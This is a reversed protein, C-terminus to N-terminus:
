NIGAKGMVLFDVSVSPSVKRNVKTVSRPFSVFSRCITTRPTRHDISYAHCTGAHDLRKFALRWFGKANQMNSLYVPPRSPVRENTAFKAIYEATWYVHDITAHDLVASVCGKVVNIQVASYLTRQQPTQRKSLIAAGSARESKAM